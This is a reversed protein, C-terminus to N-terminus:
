GDVWKGTWVQLAAWQGLPWSPVLISFFVRPLPDAFFEFNSM